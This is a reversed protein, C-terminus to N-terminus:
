SRTSSSGGPLPAVRARLVAETQDLPCLSVVHKALTAYEGRLTLVGVQMFGLGDFVLAREQVYVGRKDLFATPLESWHRRSNLHHEIHYGDNFGTQNHPTNICNYTYRYASLPASADVFIHQSWNGFMLLLSGLLLPLVLVWLTGVPNWAALASYALATVATSAVCRAALRYRARMFAYAPLEVWVALLFRLWYCLFHAASDRQYPETSSVDWPFVNHEGHHMIVHHVYYMGPPIGFLPALLNAPAANLLRWRTLPRHTSYHLALTFREQLLATNAVLYALGLAHSRALFVAAVAPVTLCLVNVFLLAIPLDREDCLLRAIARQVSRPPTLLWEM